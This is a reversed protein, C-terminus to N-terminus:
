VLISERSPLTTSQGNGHGRIIGWYGLHIGRDCSVFSKTYYCWVLLFMTSDYNTIAPVLVYSLYISHPHDHVTGLRHLFLAMQGAFCIEAVTVASRGLFISSLPTDWLCYRELDIRPLFSRYACVFVYIGSLVLHSQQYSYYYHHRGDVDVDSDLEVFALSLTLYSYFWVAMNFM